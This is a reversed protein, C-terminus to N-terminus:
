FMREFDYTEATMEDITSKDYKRYFSDSKKSVVLIIRLPTILFYFVFTLTLLTMTHFVSFIVLDLVYFFIKALPKIFTVTAVSASVILPTFNQTKYYWFIGLSISIAAACARTLNRPLPLPDHKYLNKIWVFSSM